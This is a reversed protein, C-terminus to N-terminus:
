HKNYYGSGRVNSHEPIPEIRNMIKSDQVSLQNLIERIYKMSYIQKKNAITAAMELMEDGYKNKLYPMAMVARVAQPEYSYKAFLSETFLKTEIGISDALSVARTRTWDNVFEHSAPMHESNTSFRYQIKQRPDEIEQLKVRKHVAIQDSQDYVEILKDKICVDVTKGRYSYPVSYYCEQVSVHYDPHVKAKKWVCLEYPAAPLPSLVPKEVSEFLERRSYGYSQMLRNNFEELLPKIKQNLEVLSTFKYNRLPALISQQVLKVATEVKAKDQPKRARAPVVALNYYNALESYTRNIDAEYGNNKTVAAKLNDPVLCEPVGGLYSLARVTAGIFDETRQSSVAEVYTLNSLGLTAVFIQAQYVFHGGSSYIPVTLGSFDIFYKEGAKYSQKMSLKSAKQYERIRSCFASYSISKGIPVKSYYEEYLVLKTVGKKLLETTLYKLDLVSGEKRKRGRSEVRFRSELEQSSLKSLELYSLKLGDAKVRYDRVTSRAIGLKRSISSDSAGELLFKYIQSVDRMSLNGGELHRRSKM